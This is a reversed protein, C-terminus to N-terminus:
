LGSRAVDSTSATSTGCTSLCSQLTSGCAAFDSQQTERCPRICGLLTTRADQCDSASPNTACAGRATSIESECTDEACTVADSESATACVRAAAACDARCPYLLETLLGGFRIGAVGLVMRAASRDQAIVTAGTLALQLFTAAAVAGTLYKAM